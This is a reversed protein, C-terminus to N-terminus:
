AVPPRLVVARVRRLMRRFAYPGDRDAPFEPEAVGFEFMVRGEPVDILLDDHPVCQCLM